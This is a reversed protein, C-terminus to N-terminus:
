PASASHPHQRTSKANNQNRSNGNSSVGAGKASTAPTAKEGEQELLWADVAARAYVRAIDDLLQERDM